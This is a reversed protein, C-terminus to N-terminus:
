TAMEVPVRRIRAEVRFDELDEVMIRNWNKSDMSRNDTAPRAVASSERLPTNVGGKRITREQEYM